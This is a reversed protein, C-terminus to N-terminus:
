TSVMLLMNAMMTPVVRPAGCRCATCWQADYRGFLRHRRLLPWRTSMMSLMNAAQDDVVLHMIVSYLAGCHPPVCGRLKRSAIPEM